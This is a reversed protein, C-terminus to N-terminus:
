PAPARPSSAQRLSLSSTSLSTPLPDLLPNGSACGWRACPWAPSPRSVASSSSPPSRGFGEPPLSREPRRRARSRPRFSARLLRSTRGRHYGRCRRGSASSGGRVGPRGCASWCGGRARRARPPSVRSRGPPGSLGGPWACPRRRRLAKSRRSPLYCHRSDTFSRDLDRARDAHLERAAAYLDVARLALERHGHGATDLYPLLVTVYYDLPSRVCGLVPRHVTKRSGQDVVGYRAHCVPKRLRQVDGADAVPCGQLSPIDVQLDAVRM